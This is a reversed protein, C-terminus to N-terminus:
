ETTALPVCAFGARAVVVHDLLTVGVVQAGAAIQTTLVVDEKSPTPDGSPHNHVLVFASADARLAARIPDAARVAAGHLGGKAVCRAARLHGRGDLALMWLEEHALGGIRPRAWDAVATASTLKEPARARALEMRRGLEFAAAVARAKSMVARNPQPVHAPRELADLDRRELYAAIEFAEARALGEIGGAREILDPMPEPVRVVMAVLEEISRGAIDADTAEV